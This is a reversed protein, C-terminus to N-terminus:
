HVFQYFNRQIGQSIHVFLPCKQIFKVMYCPSNVMYRLKANARTPTINYHNNENERQEFATFAASVLTFILFFSSFRRIM